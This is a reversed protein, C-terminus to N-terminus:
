LSVVTRRSLEPALVGPTSPLIDDAALPIDSAKGSFISRLDIPIEAGDPIVRVIRADKIAALRDLGGALNLVQVASIEGSSM